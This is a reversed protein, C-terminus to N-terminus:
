RGASATFFAVTIPPGDIGVRADVEVTGTFPFAGGVDARLKLETVRLAIVRLPAAMSQDGATATITVETDATVSRTAVRFTASLSGATVTVSGPVDAAFNNSSLQISLHDTRASVLRVTGQVGGSGIVSGPAIELHSIGGPPPLPPSPPLSPAPPTQAPAASPDPGTPSDGGCASLALVTVILFARFSRLLLRSIAM